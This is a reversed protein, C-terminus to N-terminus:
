SLNQMTDTFPSFLYLFTITIPIKTNIQKVTNSIASIIEENELNKKMEDAM